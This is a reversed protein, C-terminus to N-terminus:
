EVYYKEDDTLERNINNILYEETKSSIAVRSSLIHALLTQGEVKIKPNYIMSLLGNDIWYNVDFSYLEKIDIKNLELKRPLSKLYVNRPYEDMEELYFSHILGNYNKMYLLQDRPDLDNIKDIYLSIDDGRLMNMKYDNDGIVNNKFDDFIKPSKVEKTVDGYNKVDYIVSGHRTNDFNPIGSVNVGNYGNYEMMITSITPTSGERNNYKEKYTNFLTLLQRYKPLSLGLSNFNHYCKIIEGKM